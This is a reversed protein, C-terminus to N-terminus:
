LEGVEPETCYVWRYGEPTYVGLRYDYKSGSLVVEVEAKCGDKLIFKDGVKYKM